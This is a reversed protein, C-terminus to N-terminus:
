RKATQVGPAEFIAKAAAEPAVPGLMAGIANREEPPACVFRQVSDSSPRACDVQVGEEPNSSRDAAIRLMQFSRQSGTASISETDVFWADQAGPEGAVWWWDAAQATAPALATAAAMMMGLFRVM